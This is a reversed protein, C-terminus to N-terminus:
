KDQMWDPLVLTVVKKGTKRDKSYRLVSLDKITNGGAIYFMHGSAHFTPLVELAQGLIPEGNERAITNSLNHLHQRDHEGMPPHTLMWLATKPSRTLDSMMDNLLFAVTNFGM